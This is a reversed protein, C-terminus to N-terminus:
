IMGKTFSNVMISVFSNLWLETTFYEVMKRTIYIAGNFMADIMERQKQNDAHINRAKFFEEKNAFSELRKTTDTQPFWEIVNIM